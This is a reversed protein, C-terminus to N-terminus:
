CDGLVRIFSDTPKQHLDIYLLHWQHVAPIVTRIDHNCFNVKIIGLNECCPHEWDGIFGPFSYNISAAKLAGM